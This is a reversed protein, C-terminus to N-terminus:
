LVLSVTTGEGEASDVSISGGHAVMIQRSLSMGIGSGERKTTFFPVFIQEQTVASMGSGNDTVSVRVRGRDFGAVIELRASATAALADVANKVINVFVQHLLDRDGRVVLSRPKVIIEVDVSELDERLLAVVGDVLDQVGVDGFEPDPVHLLERYRAVFKMLGESRRAITAVAERVDASADSDALMTESTHALSTVPTLTNMIEHTLVRILNRWASSERATLEGSLNELSYLRELNGQLRIESVSVRLEAPVGSMRTQVMLQQGPEIGSLREPLSPDLVALDNVHNLAQLGTLRRAPNNFLSLSGDPRVAILPVPVHRIITDLYHAEAEYDTRATQFRELVRNFATRLEEDVGREVYHRTFDAHAMAAFFDELTRVHVEVFRILVLVQLLVVSGLLLPVAVHAYRMLTFTLLAITAVLALVQLIAFLRFHARMRKGSTSSRSAGIYRPERLELRM